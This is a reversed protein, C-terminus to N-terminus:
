LPQPMVEAVTYFSGFVLIRDVKEAIENAAQLAQKVNGCRHTPAANSGSQLANLLNEVSESRPTPLPALFWEDISSIIEALANKIDKDSLMGLVALTRGQCPYQQLQQALQKMADVNHAVDFISIPEGSIIQFRGALQVSMLGERLASQSVPLNNALLEIVMLVGAANRLQHHGFLAPKPLAVRLQQESQWDWTEGREIDTEIFNFDKGIQYFSADKETACAALTEIANIGSSVVPRGTRMIGAKEKAIGNINDGLWQVHDLSIATILAADADIINVADLRGGLGVELIIVDLEHHLFIDLAALTGFEFYTLSTETRTESRAKDIRAFADCLSQDDIAVGNICIRENYHFLHPSTYRGVQYGAARYIADLMAISSGKGNTGAVTIVVPFIPEPYLTNFVSAIRELELEIESPHLTEQWSLWDDLTTFRM